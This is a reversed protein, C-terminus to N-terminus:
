QKKRSNIRNLVKKYEGSYQEPISQEVKEKDNGDGILM